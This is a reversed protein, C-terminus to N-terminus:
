AGTFTDAAAERVLESEDCIARRVPAVIAGLYHNTVEKSMNGIIEHLAIAVGVRKAVEESKQNADLVPLIDNIVKDGMKRVLEGLCRAGMQQREDCTSALSDVVMEFLIKTVERLTRPTNSVVMKWVHGAAQRVVLAVDSRTLYLGALVRDRDKQGLARVIVQFKKSILKQSFNSFFRENQLM